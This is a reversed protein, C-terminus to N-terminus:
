CTFISAKRRKEVELLRLVVLMDFAFHRVSNSSYSLLVQKEFHDGIPPLICDLLITQSIVPHHAKTTAM